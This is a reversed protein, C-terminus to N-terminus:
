TCPRGRFRDRYTALAQACPLQSIPTSRRRSLRHTRRYTGSRGSPGGGWETRVARAEDTAEATISATRAAGAAAGTRAPGAGCSMRAVGAGSRTTAARAACSMPGAGGCVLDDGRLGIVTDDGGGAAIVDDGVTGKLRDPGGTGVITAQQGACTLAAGCNLSTRVDDATSTLQDAASAPIKKGSQRKVQSIFAGLQNCAGATNGADLNDEATNLKTLLSNKIGSPLAFAQVSAILTDITPTYTVTVLGNGSRGRDRIRHRPTWLGLRRRRRRQRRRRRRVLRRRRRRRGPDGRGTGGLGFQGPQAGVQAAGPPRRGAAAPM